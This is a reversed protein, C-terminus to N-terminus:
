GKKSDRNEDVMEILVGSTDDPHVFAIKRGHVGPRPKEDLLRVGKEQLESLRKEIGDVEFSLHHIGAGKERLIKGIKSGPQRSSLLEIHVGGAEIVVVDTMTEPLFEREVVRAGLLAEFQRAAKELDPVVVAIHSLKGAM